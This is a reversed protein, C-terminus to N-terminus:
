EYDTVIPENLCATSGLPGLIAQWVENETHYPSLRRATKSISFENVNKLLLM